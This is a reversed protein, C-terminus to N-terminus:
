GPRHFAHGGPANHWRTFGAMQVMAAYPGNESKDEVVLPSAAGTTPDILALPKLMPVRGATRPYWALLRHADRAVQLVAPEGLDPDTAGAILRSGLGSAPM